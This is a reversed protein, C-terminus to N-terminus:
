KQLNRIELLLTRRRLCHTKPMLFKQINIQTHQSKLASLLDAVNYINWNKRLTLEITAEVNKISINIM